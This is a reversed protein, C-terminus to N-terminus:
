AKVEAQEQKYTPYDTYGKPGPSYFTSRDYPTVPYRNFLREPLDPNSIFYRGIAAVDGTKQVFPRVNNEDHGAASLFLTPHEPTPDPFTPETTAYESPSSYSSIDIGRYIARFPDNSEVIGSAPNHIM